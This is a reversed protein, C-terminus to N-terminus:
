YDGVFIDNKKAVNCAGSSGAPGPRDWCLPSDELCLERDHCSVQPDTMCMDGQEDGCFSLDDSDVDCLVPPAADGYTPGICVGPNMTCHGEAFYGGNNFCDIEAICESVTRTSALGQCADNCDGYLETIPGGVCDSDGGSMICNLGAATLQRVLQREGIGKVSVCMAETSSFFSPGTGVPDGPMDVTTNYINVGCVNIGGAYTLVDQALNMSKNKEVGAHTAWFGPTRCIPNAYCFAPPPPEADPPIDKCVGDNSDCEQCEDINGAADYCVKPTGNDPVCNGADDCLDPICQDGTDPDNCVSGENVPIKIDCVGSAPNCEYDACFETEPDCVKPTGNDPVCVGVGDVLECLDPICLNGTDPDNCVNGINTPECLNTSENCVNCSLDGCPACTLPVQSSSQNINNAPPPNNSGSDNLDQWTLLAKDSLPDHDGAVVTYWEYFDTVLKANPPLTCLTQGANCSAGGTAEVFTVLPLIDGSSPPLGGGQGTCGGIPDEGGTCMLDELRSITLTDRIPTGDPNTNGAGTDINNEITYRCRVKQGIQTPITADCGKTFGIGHFGQALVTSSFALSALAVLLPVAYTCRSLIGRTCHMEKNLMQMEGECPEIVFAERRNIM